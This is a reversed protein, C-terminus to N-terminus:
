HVVPFTQNGALAIAIGYYGQVPSWSTAPGIRYAPRSRGPAVLSARLRGASRRFPRDACRRGTRARPGPHLRVLGPDAARRGIAREPSGGGAEIAVILHRADPKAALAADPGVIAAFRHAIGLAELLAVSLDTQKNTCVVLKAGAGSLVDLADTVGPFVYSEDAIHERYHAIFRDFLVSLRPEAIDAGSAEFGKALLSRAGQGIMDRAQSLPLPAIGERALLVNLTAVLDPASEVLTGDLDFAITSGALHTLDLDVHVGQDFGSATETLGRGM